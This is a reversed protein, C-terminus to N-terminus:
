EIFIPTRAEGERSETVLEVASDNQWRDLKRGLLRGNGYDGRESLATVNTKAKFM